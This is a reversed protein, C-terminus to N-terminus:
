VSFGAFLKATRCILWFAEFGHKLGRGQSMRRSGGFPRGYVESSFVPNEREQGGSHSLSMRTVQVSIVNKSGVSAVYFNPLLMTGFFIKKVL